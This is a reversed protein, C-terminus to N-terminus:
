RDAEGVVVYRVTATMPVVVRCEAVLANHMKTVREMAVGEYRVDAAECEFIDLTGDAYKVTVKKM